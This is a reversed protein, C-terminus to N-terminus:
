AHSNLAALAQEHLTRNTALGQGNTFDIEGSLDTFKGGAGELIPSLPAVDHYKLGDPEVMVDALGAAVLYYGYCDGFGRVLRVRKALRQLQESREVAFLDRPDTIIMTAESLETTNSVACPKGNLFTGTEASGILLQDQIPFYISGLVPIGERELAIMVGFLPTRLVFSKTGDIPDIIWRHSGSKKTEGFEEGQISYDPFQKELAQRLFTEVERDAATVPSDDAKREVEVQSNYYRRVIAGAKLSLEGLIPFYSHLNNM